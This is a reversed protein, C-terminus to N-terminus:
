KSRERILKIEDGMKVKGGKLVAAFIGERPMICDGTKYYISCPTVCEKGIQTVRMIINKGIRLKQGIPLKVLNIGSTTINEGFDGIGVKLGQKKATDISEMALLSVQRKGPAAHADGVLGYNVKLTGEGIDKKRVHKTRSICVSLVKAKRASM